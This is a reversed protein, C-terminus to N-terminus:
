RRNWSRSMVWIVMGMFTWTTGLIVVVGLVGKDRAADLFAAVVVLILSEWTWVIVAGNKAGNGLIARGVVL